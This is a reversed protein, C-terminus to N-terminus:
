FHNEYFNRAEILQGLIEALVTGRTARAKPFWVNKAQEEDYFNRKEWTEDGYCYHIMSRSVPANPEEDFDVLDSLTVRLGLRVAALGFAHMIDVWRRPPFADLAQLWLHGLDRAHAAPIVYPVGCRLEDKQSELKRKDIAFNKTAAIVEAGDYNLYSYFNGALREPFDPKSVFIMDPDCLVILEDDVCLDAAHILTGATNRPPYRDHISDAYSPAPRVLAGAKALEYFDPHWNEGSSHVIITPRHNLRTVCSFYFLKTQWGCYANNEASVFIRHTSAM